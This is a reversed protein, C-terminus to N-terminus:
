SPNLKKFYTESDKMLKTLVINWKYILGPIAVKASSLSPRLFWITISILSALGWTSPSLCDEVNSANIAVAPLPDWIEKFIFVSMLSKSFNGCCIFFIEPPFAVWFWVGLGGGGGGGRCLLCIGELPLGRGELPLGRPWTVLSAHNASAYGRTFLCVVKFDICVLPLSRPQM